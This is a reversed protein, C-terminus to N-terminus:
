EQVNSNQYIKSYSFFAQLVEEHRNQNFFSLLPTNEKCSLVFDYVEGQELDYNEKFFYLGYFQIIKLLTQFEQDQKRKLKLKKYYGSIHKYVAEIDVQAFALNLAMEQLSPIREKRKGKYGPIGVDDFNITKKIKANSLDSSLNGSLNHPKLIVEDLENVFAELYITVFESDFVSQNVILEKSKFQVGSFLIREGVQISIEFFGSADTIVANARSLNVVHIGSLSLDSHDVKGSLLKFKQGYLLGTILISFVFFVNKM